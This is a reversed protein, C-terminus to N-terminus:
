GEDIRAVIEGDRLALVTGEPIPEWHEEDFLPLSAVMTMPGESPGVDVGASKCRKAEGTQHEFLQLGPWRPESVVGGDDYRRKDAHVFLFENDSYLFNATRFGRLDRAFEALIQMRAELDPEEGPLHLLARVSVVTGLKGTAVAEGLTEELTAMPTM